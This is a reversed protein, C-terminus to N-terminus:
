FVTNPDVWKGCWTCYEVHGRSLPRGCHPCRLYMRRLIVLAFLFLVFLFLIPILRIFVFALALMILVLIFITQLKQALRLTM